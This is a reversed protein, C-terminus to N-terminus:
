TVSVNLQPRMIGSHLQVCVGALIWYKIVSKGSCPRPNMWQCALSTEAACGPSSLPVTSLKPINTELVLRSSSPHNAYSLMLDTLLPFHSALSLEVMEEWLGHKRTLLMTKVSRSSQKHNRMLFCEDHQCYFGWSSGCLLSGEGLDSLCVTATAHGSCFLLIM